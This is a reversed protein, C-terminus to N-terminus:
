ITELRMDRRRNLSRATPDPPGTGTAVAAYAYTLGAIWLLAVAIIATYAVLAPWAPGEHAERLLLDTDRRFELNQEPRVPIESAGIQPDEPRYVPAAVLVDRDALRVLTKWDGGVPLAASSRYHGPDIEEMPAIRM